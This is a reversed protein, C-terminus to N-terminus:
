KTRRRTMAGMGLLGMGLLGLMAPEPISTAFVASADGQTTGTYNGATLAPNFNENEGSISLQLFFPVPSVLYSTGAPNAITLAGYNIIFSGGSATQVGVLPVNAQSGGLVTNSSGLLQDDATGGLVVAGGVLSKTTNQNADSFFQVSGSTFSALATTGIFSIVGSVSFTGYLAYGAGGFLNEAVNVQSGVVANNLTFATANFFGSETFFTPAFPNAQTQTIAAEYRATLTDASVLNAFAGAIAGEQVQIVGANATSALCALALAAIIKKKFMALEKLFKSKYQHPFKDTQIKYLVYWAM